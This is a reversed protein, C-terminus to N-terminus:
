TWEWEVQTRSPVIFLYLFSARMCAHLMFSYHIISLIKGKNSKLFLSARHLLEYSINGRFATCPNKHDLTTCIIVILPYMKEFMIDQKFFIHMDAPLQHKDISQCNINKSVRAISTQRYEPL